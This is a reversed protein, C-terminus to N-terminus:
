DDEELVERVPVIVRASGIADTHRIVIKDSDFRVKNIYELRSIEATTATVGVTAPTISLREVGPSPKSSGTIVKPDSITGDTKHLRVINRPQRNVVSNVYSVDDVDIAQDASSVNVVVNFDEFFTPLYFSIARGGLAYLLKRVDHLDSRNTTIFGKRSTKRSALDDSFHKISGIRGDIQVIDRSWDEEIQQSSVFNEDDLLVRTVSDITLSSFASTDAIDRENDIVIFKMRNNQLKTRWRQQQISRTALATQVPMVRANTTFTKTFPSAFTITTATFSSIQLAEFNFPDEWVVALGGNRYDSFDTSAVTIVTDDVAVPDVLDTAEFWIPVGYARSQGDFILNELLRRDNEDSLINFEYEVRPFERLQRRQEKGSRAKLVDTFFNLREIVPTEPEFPFLVSREGTIPVQLLGPLDFTFDLTGNISPPGELQITLSRTFGSQPPVDIDPPPIPGEFDVGPGASTDSYAQWLRTDTRFASYIDMTFVQVSLITGAEVTRPLIYVEEFFVDGHTGGKFAGFCRPVVSTGFNRDIFVREVMVPDDTQSEPKVQTIKIPPLPVTAPKFRGTDTQGTFSIASFGSVDPM